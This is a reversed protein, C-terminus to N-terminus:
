VQLLDTLEKKQALTAAMEAVTVGKLYDIVSRRVPEWRDHLPCLKDGSCDDMGIACRTIGSLNDVSELIDHLTIQDAPRSLCFGGKPGKFSKLLDERALKQLLTALYPAPVNQTEAIQHVRCLHGEEFGALHSLARVAYQCSRSYVM